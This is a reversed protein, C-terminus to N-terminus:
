AAKPSRTRMQSPDTRPTGRRDTGPAAPREPWLAVLVLVLLLVVGLMTLAIISVESVELKLM